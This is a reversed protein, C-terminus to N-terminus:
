RTANVPLPAVMRVSPAPAVIAADTVGFRAVSAMMVHDVVDSRM